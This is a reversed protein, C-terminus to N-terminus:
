ALFTCDSESLRDNHQLPCAYHCLGWPNDLCMGYPYLMDNCRQHLSDKRKSQRPTLEANCGHEALKRIQGAITAVRTAIVASVRQCESPDGHPNIQAHIYALKVALLTAPAPCKM